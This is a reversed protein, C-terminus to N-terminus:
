HLLSYGLALLRPSPKPKSTRFSREDLMTPKYILLDSLLAEAPPWEKADKSQLAAMSWDLMLPTHTETLDASVPGQMWVYVKKRHSWVESEWAWYKRDGVVLNEESTLKSAVGENMINGTNGTSTTLAFNLLCSAPTSRPFIAAQSNSIPFHIGLIAFLLFVTTFSEVLHSCCREKPQPITNNSTFFWHPLNHLLIQLM